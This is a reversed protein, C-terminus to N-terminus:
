STSESKGKGCARQLSEYRQKSHESKISTENAPENYAQRSYWQRESQSADMGAQSNAGHQSSKANFRTERKRDCRAVMKVGYPM